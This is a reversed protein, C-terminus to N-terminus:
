PFSFFFFFFFFFFFLFFLFCCVCIVTVCNITIISVWEEDKINQITELIRQAVETPLFNRIRLLGGAKDLEQELKGDGYKSTLWEHIAFHDTHYSSRIQFLKIIPQLHQSLAQSLMTTADLAAKATLEM